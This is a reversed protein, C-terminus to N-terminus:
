DGHRLNRRDRCYVTQLPAGTTKPHRYASTTKLFRRTRKARSSVAAVAMSYPKIAASMAITTIPTNFFTPVFRLVFNLVTM